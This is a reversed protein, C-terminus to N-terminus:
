GMTSSATPWCSCAEPQYDGHATSTRGVFEGQIPYSGRRSRVMELRSSLDGPCTAVHRLAPAITAEAAPAPCASPVVPDAAVRPRPGSRGPDAPKAGREADADVQNVGPACATAPNHERDPQNAPGDARSARHRRSPTVMRALSDPGRVRRLRCGHLPLQGEYDHDAARPACRAVTWPDRTPGGASVVVLELLELQRACNAGPEPAM